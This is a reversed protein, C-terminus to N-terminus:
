YLRSSPYRWMLCDTDNDIVDVETTDAKTIANIYHNYANAKEHFLHKEISNDKRTIFVTYRPIQRKVEENKM